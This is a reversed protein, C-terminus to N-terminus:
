WDLGVFGRRAVLRRTTMMRRRARVVAIADSVGRVLHRREDPVLFSFGRVGNRLGGQDRYPKQSAAM